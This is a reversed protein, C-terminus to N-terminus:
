PCCVSGEIAIPGGAPPALDGLPPKGNPCVYDPRHTAGDGIDGVVHGGQAACQEQTVAKHEPTSKAPEASPMAPAAAHSCATLVAVVAWSMRHIRM